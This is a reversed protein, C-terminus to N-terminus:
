QHSHKLLKMEVSRGPNENEQQERGLVSCSNKQSLFQSPCLAWLHQQYRFDSVFKLSVLHTKKLPYCYKNLVAQVPAPSTIYHKSTKFLIYALFRKRHPHRHWSSLNKSIQNIQSPCFKCLSSLLSTIDCFGRKFIAM